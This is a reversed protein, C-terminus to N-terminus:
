AGGGAYIDLSTPYEEDSDADAPWAFVYQTMEGARVPVWVEVTVEHTASDYTISQIVAKVDVNAVYATNFDLLVADFADLPVLPMYGRFQLLKWTNSYRFLWFTASKIVLDKINYIYFDFTKEFLGYKPINNRLVVQRKDEVYDRRWEAVFKTVLEDTPTYGLSLTKTDILTETITKSSTPATSLYKIYLVDDRIQVTCRAQWAIEELVQLSNKRQLLAFHSPYNTLLSSVTSFTGSDPTLNTYQNTLYELIDATNPGETSELTIYIKSADWREGVYDDL